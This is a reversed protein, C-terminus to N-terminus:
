RGSPTRPDLEVGPQLGRGSDVDVV